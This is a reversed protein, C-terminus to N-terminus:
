LRAVRKEWRVQAEPSALLRDTYYVKDVIGSVVYVREAAIRSVRSRGSVEVEEANIVGVRSDRVKVRKGIVKSVEANILEVDEGEVETAEGVVTIKGGVLKGKGKGRVHAEEASLSGSIKLAGGVYLKRVKVEGGVKLVEEVKLLGGVLNGTVEAMGAAAEGIESSGIVRLTGGVELRTIRCSGIKASGGISAQEVTGDDVELSGKVHLRKVNIRLARLSGSIGVDDAELTACHLSGEIRAEVAKISAGVRVPGRVHVRRVEAMGADLFDTILEDAKIKRCKLGRTEVRTASLEEAELRGKCMIETAELSGEVRASGRCEVRDYRGVPKFTEDKGIVIDMSRVWRTYTRSCM